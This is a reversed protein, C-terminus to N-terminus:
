SQSQDIFDQPTLVKVSHIATVPFDTINFTILMDCHSRVAAQYQCSDELDQYKLDDIGRLLSENDHECVTFRKLVHKMISRVTNTREPNKQMMVKKLYNDTIYLMSYFGGSTIYLEHKNELLSQMLSRTVDIQERQLILELVINTDLLIKM